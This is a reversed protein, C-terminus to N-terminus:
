WESAEAHAVRRRPRAVQEGGCNRCTYRMERACDVCFTCEYSCIYAVGDPQLLASCGECLEKMTLGAKAEVPTGLRYGVGPVTIVVRGDRASKGLASRLLFVHQALNADTAEEHEWLRTFFEDRKVVEGRAQLLLLLIRFVKESLPRQQSDILLVRRKADLIYQGFRYTAPGDTGIVNRPEIWRNENGIAEFTSGCRRRV